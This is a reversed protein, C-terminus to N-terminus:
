FHVDIKKSIRMIKKPRGSDRLFFFGGVRSAFLNQADHGQDQDHGQDHGQDHNIM